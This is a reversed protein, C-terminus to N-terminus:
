SLGPLDPVPPLPVLAALRCCCATACAACGVNGENGGAEGTGVSEFSSQEPVLRKSLGMDSLKAVGSETLLVNHPKLDRCRPAPPSPPPLLNDLAPCPCHCHSHRPVRCPALLMGSM